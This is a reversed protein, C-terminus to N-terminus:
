KQMKSGSDFQDKNNDHPGAPSLTSARPQEISSLVAGTRALAVRVIDVVSRSVSVPVIAIVVAAASFAKSQNACPVM